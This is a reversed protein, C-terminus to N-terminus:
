IPADGYSKAAPTAPADDPLSRVEVEVEVEPALAQRLARLERLVDRQVALGENIKWYWCWVERILLVVLVSVVLVILMLGVEDM